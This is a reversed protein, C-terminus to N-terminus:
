MFFKPKKVTIIKGPQIFGKRSIRYYFVSHYQNSVAPVMFNLLFGQNDLIFFDNSPTTPRIKTDDKVKKRNLIMDSLLSDNNISFVSIKRLKSDYLYLKKSRVKLDTIALFEGPGKGYRGITKIFKGDPQFVYLHAQGMKSTGIYVRNKKGVALASIYGEIFLKKNSEFIRKKIFAVSDYKQNDVSYITLKNVNKLKKPIEQKRTNLFSSNGSKNCNNLLLFYFFVVAM